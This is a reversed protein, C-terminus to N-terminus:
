RTFAFRTPPSKHVTSFHITQPNKLPTHASWLTHALIFTRQTRTICPSRLNRRPARLCFEETSSYCLWSQFLRLSKEPAQTHAEVSWNQAENLGPFSNSKHHPTISLVCVCVCAHERLFVCVQPHTPPHIFSHCAQSGCLAGISSMMAPCRTM